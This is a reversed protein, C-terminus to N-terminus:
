ALITKAKEGAREQVLKPLLYGPLEHSLQQYLAKAMELPLDFHAAGQVKDLVHLYYPQVDADFLSESLEKLVAVNDNVGKLLVTQNLLLVNAAKLAQMAKKVDQNIERPHNCHIVLIARQKLSGMWDVFDSTIREPLVVPMRSHIRLRKIQPLENLKDSFNKLVTDNMVLPDGGSLIVENIDADNKIYEFLPAWQKSGPTNEEYPFHRRFCYRCNVACTGTLTFLVRSKYKHLLGSIPNVAKEQLPDYSFGAVQQEEAMAPLVQLLLPDNVDGKRMRAAYSRPIKLSFQRMGLASIGLQEPVLELVRGLEEPTDIAHILELQWDQKKVTLSNM